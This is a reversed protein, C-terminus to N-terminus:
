VSKKELTEKLLVAARVITAVAVAAFIYHYAVPSVSIAAGIGAATAISCNLITIVRQKLTGKTPNVLNNTLNHLILAATAYVLVGVAMERRFVPTGVYGLLGSVTQSPEMLVTWAKGGAMVLSVGGFGTWFNHLSFDVNKLFNIQATM